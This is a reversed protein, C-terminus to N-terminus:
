FQTLVEHGSDTCLVMDCRRAGGWGDYYAGPEINFAMGAEIVDPSGPRLRPPADHDIAIFGVGHGTGHKFAEGFGRSAMVRRAAEDVDAAMVGPKVVSLAADRAEDIAALLKIERVGAQGVVYTRTIDTWYGDAYSNCHILALEGDLLRRDRSRQYAAYADAAHPGSMCYVFGDARQVGKYGVCTQLARRFEAAVEVETMGTQLAELGQEYAKAAIECAIRVRGVEHSTLVSRLGVLPADASILVAKPAIDDIIERVSDGFVQLSVYSSPILQPGTELGIRAKLLDMTRLAEQLPESLAETLTVSRDLSAPSYAIRHDAAAHSALDLEDQPFVLALEGDRTCIALSKGIVPWYGSLMLVNTPNGCVIADLGNKELAEKVLVQREVDRM